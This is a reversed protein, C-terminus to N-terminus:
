PDSNLPRSDGKRKMSKLRGEKKMYLCVGLPPDLTERGEEYERGRKEAGQRLQAKVFGAICRVL